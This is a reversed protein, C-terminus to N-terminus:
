AQASNRGWDHGHQSDISLQQMQAQLYSSPNEIRDVNSLPSNYEQEFSDLGFNLGIDLQPEGMNLPDVMFNDPLAMAHGPAGHQLQGTAQHQQQQHQAMGMHMQQEAGMHHQHQHQHQPAHTMAAYRKYLDGALAHYYRHWYLVEDTSMEDPHKGGFMGNGAGGNEYGNYGWQGQGQASGNSGVREAGNGGSGAVESDIVGAAQRNKHKKKQAAQADTAALKSRWAAAMTEGMERARALSEEEDLFNDDPAIVQFGEPIRAWERGDSDIQTPSPPTPRTGLGDTDSKKTESREIAQVQVKKTSADSAATGSRVPRLPERNAAPQQPHAKGPTGVAASSRKENSSVNATRVKAMVSSLLADDIKSKMNSQSPSPGGTSAEVEGPLVIRQGKRSPPQSQAVGSSTVSSNSEASTSTVMSVAQTKPM